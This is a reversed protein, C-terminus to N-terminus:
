GFLAIQVYFNAGGTMGEKGSFLLQNVSRSAHVPEILTVSLLSSRLARRCSLAEFNLFSAAAVSAFGVRFAPM